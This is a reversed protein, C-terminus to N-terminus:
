GRQRGDGMRGARHAAADVQAALDDENRIHVAQQLGSFGRDAGFRSQNDEAGMQAIREANEDIADAIDHFKAVLFDFFRAFPESERSFAPSEDGSANTAPM